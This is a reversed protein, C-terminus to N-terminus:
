EGLRPIALNALHGVLVAMFTNIFGPKGLPEMLMQWRIARSANSLLGLLMVWFIVSLKADSFSQLIEIKDKETLNKVVLWDIIRRAWSFFITKLGDILIKRSKSM